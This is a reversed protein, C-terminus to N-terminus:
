QVWADDVPEGDAEYHPGFAIFGLGDPGAEFARAVEPGVRVADLARVDVFEDDLKVRGTGRLIVYVEEARSHRHMFPSRKGPRLRFHTLGTQRADLRDRAVRAEWRAGFGNAPAVDDVDTLNILTHGAPLESMARDHCPPLAMPMGLADLIQAM